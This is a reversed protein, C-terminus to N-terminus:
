NKSKRIKKQLKSVANNVKIINNLTINDNRNVEIKKIKVELEKIESENIESENIESKRILKKPINKINNICENIIKGLLTFLKEIDTIYKITQDKAIQVDEIDELEIYKNKPISLIKSYIVKRNHDKLIKLFEPSDSLELKNLFDLLYDIFNYFKVLFDIDCTDEHKLMYLISDIQDTTLLPLSIIEENGGGISNVLSEEYDILKNSLIRLGRTLPKILPKKIDNIIKNIFEHNTIYSRDSYYENINPYNINFKDLSYKGWGGIVYTTSDITINGDFNIFNDIDFNSSM